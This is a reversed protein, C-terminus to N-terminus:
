FLTEKNVEADILRPVGLELFADFVADLSRVVDEETDFALATTKHPAVLSLLAAFVKGDAWSSTFNTPQLGPFLTNRDCQKQAWNLVAATGELTKGKRFTMKPNSVGLGLSTKKNTSKKKSERTRHGARGGGGGDGDRTRRLM